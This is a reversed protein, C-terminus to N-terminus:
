HHGAQVQSDQSSIWKKDCSPEAHGREPWSLTAHSDIGSRLRSDISTSGPQPLPLLPISGPVSTAM